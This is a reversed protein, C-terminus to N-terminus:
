TSGLWIREGSPLNKNMELMGGPRQYRPNRIDAIVVLSKPTSPTSYRLSSRSGKEWLRFFAEDADKQDPLRYAKDLLDAFM